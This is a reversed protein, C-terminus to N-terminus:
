LPNGGHGIYLKVPNLFCIRGAIGRSDEMGYYFGSGIKGDQSRHALLLFGVQLVDQLVKDPSSLCRNDPKEWAMQM